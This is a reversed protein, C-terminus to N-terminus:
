GHNGLPAFPNRLWGSGRCSGAFAWLAPGCAWCGPHARASPLRQCRPAAPAASAAPHPKPNACTRKSNQKRVAPSYTPKSKQSPRVTSRGLTHCSLSTKLSPKHYKGFLCCTLICFGTACVCLCCALWFCTSELPLHIHIAEPDVDLTGVERAQSHLRGALKLEMKDSEVQERPGKFHTTQLLNYSHWHKATM